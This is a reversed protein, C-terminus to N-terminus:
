WYAARRVAQTVVIHNQPNAGGGGGGTNEPIAVVIGAYANPDYETTVSTTGASTLVRYQSLLSNAYSIGTWGPGHAGDPLPNLTAQYESILITSANTTTISLPAGLGKVPSGPDWVLATQNSGSVAFIDYISDANHPQTITIAESTLTATAFCAWLEQYDGASIKTFAGITAGVISTISDAGSGGAARCTVIVYCGAATTTYNVVDPTFSGFSHVIHIPTGNIALAM